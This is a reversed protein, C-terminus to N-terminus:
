HAINLRPLANWKIAIFVVFDVNLCSFFLLFFNACFHATIMSIFVLFFLRQRNCNGCFWIVIFYFEDSKVSFQHGISLYEHTHTCTHKEIAWKVRAQAYFLVFLYFFFVVFNTSRIFLLPRSVSWNTLRVWDCAEPQNIVQCSQQKSKLKM